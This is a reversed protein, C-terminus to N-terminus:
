VSGTALYDILRRTLKKHPGNELWVAYINLLPLHWDPLVQVLTGAELESRIEMQPLPRMGLGAKVASIAAAITDVEMRINDPEISVTEEGSILTIADPLAAVAIFECMSLDKVTLIPQREALYNPAAVLVRRFDAIRRSKLSSDALVGPRIALDIGEKVLDFPADSSRLSISVMPHSLAFHWLKQYIPTDKGFVPMAVRLAGVPQESVDAHADLAEDGAKTMRRAAGLMAQGEQTLSLSRTSRFFLSVGLRNELKSIHHSISATSLKLRRGAESFSGADAVAVFIALRRYDEIM